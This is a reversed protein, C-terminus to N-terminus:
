RSGTGRSTRRLELEGEVGAELLQEAAPEGLEDQGVRGVQRRGADLDGGPRRALLRLRQRHERAALPRQRGDREQERHELDPRGREAHEVLDVGREVLCVDPRNM